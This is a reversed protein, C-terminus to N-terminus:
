GGKGAVPGLPTIGSFYASRSINLDRGHEQWALVIDLEFVSLLEGVPKLQIDYRFGVPRGNVMAEESLEGIDFDKLSRFDREIVAMRSELLNLAMVRTSLHDLYNLASFYSRYIAVLGGSLVVVTVMLEIFTFGACARKM